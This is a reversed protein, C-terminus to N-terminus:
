VRNQTLITDFPMACFRWNGRVKVINELYIWGEREGSVRLIGRKEQARLFNTSYQLLKFIRCIIENVFYLSFKVFVAPVSHNRCEEGM